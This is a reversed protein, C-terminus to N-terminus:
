RLFRLLDNLRRREFALDDKIANRKVESQAQGLLQKLQSIRKKIARIRHRLVRQDDKIRDIPGRVCVAVGVARMTKMVSGIRQLRNLPM